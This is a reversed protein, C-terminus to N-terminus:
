SQIREFRNVYVEGSTCNVFIQRGVEGGTDLEKFKFGNLKLYKKAAEVNLTGVHDINRKSLQSMMNGDGAFYVEIEEIDEKKIKLLAMLSPIAQSVYKASIKLDSDPSDPLLCHALGFLKKRKWVFAIGVCSGLTAKLIDGDKGVKVEGIKVHIDNKVDVLRSEMKM